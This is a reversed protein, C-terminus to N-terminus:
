DRKYVASLPTPFTKLAMVRHNRLKKRAATRATIGDTASIGSISSHSSLLDCLDSSYGSHIQIISHWLPLEHVQQSGHSAVDQLM